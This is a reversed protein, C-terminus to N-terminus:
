KGTTRPKLTWSAKEGDEKPPRKDFWVESDYASFFCLFVQWAKKSFITASRLSFLRKQPVYLSTSILLASLNCNQSTKCFKNQRKRGDFNQISGSIILGDISLESKRNQCTFFNKLWIQLFKTPFLCLSNWSNLNLTHKCM